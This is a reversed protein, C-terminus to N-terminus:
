ELIQKMIFSVHFPSRSLHPSTKMISQSSQIIYQCMQQLICHHINFSYLTDCSLPEALLCLKYSLFIIQIEINWM